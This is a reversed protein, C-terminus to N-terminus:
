KQVTFQYTETMEGNSFYIFYTGSQLANGNFDISHEGIEFLGSKITQVKRGQIDLIEIDAIITESVVFNLTAMGDVPNPVVNTIQVTGIPRAAGRGVSTLDDIQISDLGSTIENGEDDYFAWEYIYEESADEINIENFTNVILPSSADIRKIFRITGTSDNSIRAGTIGGYSTGDQNSKMRDSSMAMISNVGQLFKISFHAPQIENEEIFKGLDIEIPIHVVSDQSKKFSIVNGIPDAILKRRWRYTYECSDGDCHYVTFTVLGSWNFNNDVNFGFQLENQAPTASLDVIQNNPNWAVGVSDVLLAGPNIFGTPNTEIKLSCIPSVPIKTNYINFLRHIANPNTTPFPRAKFRDCRELPARKCEFRSTYTCPEGDGHYVTWQITIFGSATTPTIDVNFQQIDNCPNNYILSGATTGSLSTPSTTYQCPSAFLNDIIGGTVTYDIQSINGISNDFTVEYTCCESEIVAEGMEDCPPAPTECNGFDLQLIQNPGLNVTYTSSSPISQTWGSQQTESVTYQGPPLNNFYYYGNADTTATINGPNLVIEWGALGPEINPNNPTNDDKGNCNKDNIKRGLITGNPDCCVQSLFVPAPDTGEPTIGKISGEVLLGMAVASWNRLEIQLCHEGPKVAFAQNISGGQQFNVVTNPNAFNFISNGDFFVEATNDAFIDMNIRISDVGECVCFCFQFTYPDDPPQNNTNWNPFSYPSIWEADASPNIWASNKNITWAPTPLNLNQDPSTILEWYADPQGIGYSTQNAHNYGTNIILSDVKCDPDACNKPEQGFLSVGIFVLTFFYIHKM